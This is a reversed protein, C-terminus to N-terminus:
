MECVYQVNTFNLCVQFAYRKLLNNKTSGGQNLVYEYVYQINNLAKLAFQITTITTKVHEVSFVENYKDIYTLHFKLIQNRM